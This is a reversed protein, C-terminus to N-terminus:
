FLQQLWTLLRTAVGSSRAPAVQRQRALWGVRLMGITTSMEPGMTAGGLEPRGIRVPCGLVQEALSDIGQLRATGGTLVVRISASRVGARLLERRAIDLMERLRADVIVHLRRPDVSVTGGRPFREFVIGQQFRTGGVEAHEEKLRKADTLGINMGTAVDSTIHDGGLPIMSSFVPARDRYLMIGMTGAGIDIIAAGLKKEDEDLVAEGAAYPAFVFDETEYQQADVCAAMNEATTRADAIVHLQAELRTGHMGEPERVHRIDDVAYSCTLVGIVRTEDPVPSGRASEIARQVDRATITRSERTIAICGRNNFFRVHRSGQALFLTQVEVGAQEEAAGIAREATYRAAALDVVEGRRLGRSTEVGRGVVEIEDGTLEAILCRTQSSGVDLAVVFENDTTEM